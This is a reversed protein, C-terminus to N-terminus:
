VRRRGRTGLHCCRRCNLFDGSELFELLEEFRGAWGFEDSEVKM